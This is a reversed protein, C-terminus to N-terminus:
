PYCIYWFTQITPSFYLTRWEIYLLYVFPFHSFQSRSFLVSAWFHSLHPRYNAVSHVTIPYPSRPALPVYGAFILELVWGGGGGWGREPVNSRFYINFTKSAFDLSGRCLIGSRVMCDPSDFSCFFCIWSWVFTFVQMNQATIKM